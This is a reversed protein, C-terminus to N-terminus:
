PFEVLRAPSIRGDATRISSDRVAPLGVHQVEGAAIRAGAVIRVAVRGEARAGAYDSSQGRDAAPPGAAAAAALLILELTMVAM